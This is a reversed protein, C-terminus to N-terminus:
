DNMHRSKIWHINGYKVFGSKLALSMSKYNDEEIHVFPIKEISRLRDIIAITLDYGYGKKRYEPLVNLFGIAGDDHTMIWATLKEEDYIGLAIGREIRDIIYQISTYDKYKSNKFIYEADDVILDRIKYRFNLLKIDEPFVLKVCSLKWEIERNNIIYPLMWDDIIVFFEDRECEKLLLKLDAESPSSIYVWDEDSRGKVIVSDGIRKIYHISNNEIFNIININRIRDIRLFDIIDNKSFM